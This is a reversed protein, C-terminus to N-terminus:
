ACLPTTTGRFLKLFSWMLELRRHPFGAVHYRPLASRRLYGTVESAEGRAAYVISLITKVCSSQCMAMGFVLQFDRVYVRLFSGPCPGIYSVCLMSRLSSHYVNCQLIFMAEAESVLWRATSFRATAFATQTCFSFVVILALSMARFLFGEGQEQHFDM